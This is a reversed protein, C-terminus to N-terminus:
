PTSAASNCAPGPVTLTRWHEDRHARVVVRAPSVAVEVRAAVLAPPIAPEDTAQVQPEEVVRDPAGQVSDVSPPEDEVDGAARPDDAVMERGAAELDDPRVDRGGHEADRRIPLVREAEHAGIELRRGPTRAAEIRDHARAEQHM